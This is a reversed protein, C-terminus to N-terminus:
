AKRKAKPVAGGAAPAEIMTMRLGMGKPPADHIPHGLHGPNFGVKRPDSADPKIPLYTLVFRGKVPDTPEIKVRQTALLKAFLADLAASNKAYEPVEFKLSVTFPGQDMITQAILHSAIVHTDFAVRVYGSTPTLEKVGTVSPLKSIAATIAAVQSANSVGAVYFTKNIPHPVLATKGAKEAAGAGHLFMLALVATMAHLFIKM